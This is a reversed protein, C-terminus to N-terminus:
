TFDRLITAAQNEKEHFTAKTYKGINCGKCTDIQALTGKPLGTSIHQMIRLASHHLHGLRRHWLDGTDQSVVKRSKSSLAACGDVDFKYLNKVRVRINEVQGTAKHRLFEKGESFVM